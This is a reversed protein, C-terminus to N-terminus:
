EWRLAEYPDVRTARAAPLLSALTAAAMLVVITTALVPPDFAGIGPIQSAVWRGLLVSVVAGLVAGAGALRTGQALVMRLVASRQAGLAMRIGIEPTRQAVSYSIVGYLGLAALLLAAAAFFGLM